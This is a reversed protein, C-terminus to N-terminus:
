SVGRRARLALFLLPPTGLLATVVGLKLEGGALVRASLRALVDAWTLALAGGLASAWLLRAPDGHVLPRLLHPVFLGVFGITGSVSVAAGVSLASGFLLRLRLAAPRVGLSEAAGQGLTWARLAGGCSLLLVAGLAMPAAVARMQAASRDALSGLLWFVIERSALPNESLNLALAILANCGTTVVFGALLVSEPSVGRGGVVAIAAVALLAGTMGALPAALGSRDALGSYIAVVAGLAAGASVGGIGPEVLPNHMMGQMAAGSLGLCAGVMLGLAARPVRLEWFIRALIPQDGAALSRWLALPNVSASGVAVSLVFTAAILAALALFLALSRRRSIASM